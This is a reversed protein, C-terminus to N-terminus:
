DAQPKPDAWRPWYIREARGILDRLPVPGFTRSDAGLGRVDGLVFCHGHPVTLEPLDGAPATTAAAAASPFPLVVEYKVQANHEWFVQGEPLERGAVEGVTRQLMEGNVILEGGTIEVTDGPLAVVRKIYLRHRQDPSIFVVVDGRVVPGHRYALRNVLVREGEHITPSMFPATVRVAKVVGERALLGETVFVPLPLVLLAVYVYWRNYDKPVFSPSSRRAQRAADMLAAVFVVVSVGLAAWCSTRWGGPLPLLALMGVASTIVAVLYLVLGKALQGCYIHGLGPSLVSLVCAVLLKRPRSQAPIATDM